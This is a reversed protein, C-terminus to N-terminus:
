FELSLLIFGRPQPYFAADSLGRGRASLMRPPAWGILVCRPSHYRRKFASSVCSASMTFTDSLCTTTREVRCTHLLENPRIQLEISLEFQFRCVEKYECTSHSHQTWDLGSTGFLVYYMQLPISTSLTQMLTYLLYSIARQLSFSFSAQPTECM